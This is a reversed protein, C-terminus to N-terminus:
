TYNPTPKNVTGWFLILNSPDHRIFFIFPRNAIFRKQDGSRRLIIGTASAAVTGTETIDIEVKHLVDSAYLGPNALNPSNRLADLGSSPFKKSEIFRVFDDDIPRGQRKNRQSPQLSYKNEGLGITELQDKNRNSITYSYRDSEVARNKTGELTERKKRNARFYGKRDSFDKRPTASPTTSKEANIRSFIFDDSNTVNVGPSLLGLNAVGPTFLSTLGLSQLATNLSLTSSLKMKPMAIICTENKMNNILSNIAAPYLKSELEGLADGESSTPLLVYMTTEFQYSGDPKLKIADPDSSKYPLGLIKVGLQKDEYFPFPGGNYMMDIIVSQGSALFFPKRKTATDVFHQHWEGNFYLASALIVKTDTRPADQLINSIKDKTRSKVWNNILNQAAKQQNQFDVSIIDNKYNNRAISSFEPRIPYGEQVFIGGAVVVEPSRPIGSAQSKLNISNLLIGFMQHVIESHGSIDIGAELGLIKATEEFTKGASGLLVVALASAINLPSFIVNDRDVSTRGQNRGIARDLHLAFRTIGQSLINNVHNTWYKDENNVAIDQLPPVSTKTTAYNFSNPRNYHPGPVGFPASSTLPYNLTPFPYRNRTPSIPLSQTPEYEDPFILQSRAHVLLFFLLGIVKM